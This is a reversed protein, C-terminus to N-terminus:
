RAARAREVALAIRYEMRLLPLDEAEEVVAVGGRERVRRSWEAMARGRRIISALERSCNPDSGTM